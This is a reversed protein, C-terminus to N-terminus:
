REQTAKLVQLVRRVCADVIKARAEEPDLKGSEASGGGGAPAAEGDGLVRMRIGIENVELAM